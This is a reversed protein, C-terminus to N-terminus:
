GQECVRRARAGRKGPGGPESVVSPPQARHGQMLVMPRQHQVEGGDRGSDASLRPGTGRSASRFAATAALADESPVASATVLCTPPRCTQPSDRPSRRPGGKGHRPSRSQTAPTSGSPPAAAARTATATRPRTARRSPPTAARHPRGPPSATGSIESTRTRRPTSRTRGRTPWPPIPACCAPRSRRHDSITGSSRPTRGRRCATAPHSRPRGCRRGLTAAFPDTRVGSRRHSRPGPPRRPYASDATRSLRRAHDTRGRGQQAHRASPTPHTQRQQEHLEARWAADRVHREACRRTGCPPSTREAAAHRHGAAHRTRRRWRSRADVARTTEPLHLVHALPRAALRVLVAHHGSAVVRVQWVLRWRFRPQVLSERM